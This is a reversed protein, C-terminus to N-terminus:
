SAKVEAWVTKGLPADSVGWVHCLAELIILGRGRDREESEPRPHPRRRVPDQVEVVSRVHDIDLTLRISDGPETGYRIANTVIECTVLEVTDVYDASADPVLALFSERVFERAARASQREGALLLVPPTSSPPALCAPTSDRRREIMRRGKRTSQEPGNYPGSPEDFWGVRAGRVSTGDLPTDFLTTEAVGQM